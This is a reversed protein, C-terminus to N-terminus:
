NPKLIVIRNNEISYDFNASEKFTDMLDIITEDDFRGRYRTANLAEFRNEIQVNYKREIKRSISEFDENNFFLQGNMWGIYDDTNVESISFSDIDAVAKQGPVIKVPSMDRDESSLEVSGEVLVVHTPVENYANVVFSTGLVSVGVQDTNVIFPRKSDQAVEFYAEGYLYVERKRGPMFQVPFKLNSGANLFVKSGDSLEVRFTKGHPVIIENMVLRGLNQDSDYTLRTGSQKAIGKGDVSVIEQRGMENLEQTGTETKLLVSEVNIELVNNVAQPIEQRSNFSNYFFFTTGAIALFVAAYKLVPWMYTRKPKSAPEQQMLRKWVRDKSGSLTDSMDLQHTAGKDQYSELFKELLLIEEETCSGEIYKQFLVQIEERDM